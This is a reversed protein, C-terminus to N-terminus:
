SPGGIAALGLPTIWYGAQHRHGHLELLRWRVLESLYLKFTGLRASPDVKSVIALANRSRERCDARLGRAAQLLETHHLKLVTLPPEPDAAASAAPMEGWEACM